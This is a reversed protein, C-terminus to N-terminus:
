AEGYPATTWTVEILGNINNAGMNITFGATTKSEASPTFQVHVSTVCCLTIAYNTNSYASTFAVSATKPNGGFSAFPVAGAKMNAGPGSGGGGGPLNGLQAKKKNFGDASDEILVVDANVPAVKEAFSNIDAAARKLQADNTVNLLGVDSKTVVHPNGAVLGRHTTNASVDANASVRGETYYLNGAETVDDTDLNGTHSGGGIAHTTAVDDYANAYPIPAGGPGDIRTLNGGALAADLNTSRLIDQPYFAECLDREGAAPITLKRLDNVTVAGGTTNRIWFPM